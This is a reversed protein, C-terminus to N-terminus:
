FILRLYVTKLKDGETRRKEGIYVLGILRKSRQILIVEKGITL